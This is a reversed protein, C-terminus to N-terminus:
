LGLEGLPDRFRGSNLKDTITLNLRLRTRKMKKPPPPHKVGSWSTGTQSPFETVARPPVHLRLLYSKANLIPTAFANLPASFLTQNSPWAGDGSAPTRTKEQDQGLLKTFM